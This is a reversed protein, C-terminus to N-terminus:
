ELSIFSGQYFLIQDSCWFGKVSINLRADEHKNVSKPDFHQGYLRQLQSKVHVDNYIQSLSTATINRIQKHRM